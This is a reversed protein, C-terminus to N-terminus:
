VKGCQIFRIMYRFIIEPMHFAIIEFLTTAKNVSRLKFLKRISGPKGQSNEIRANAWNSIDPLVINPFRNKLEFVRNYFSRLHYEIYEKKNSINILVGTQNNQHQRYLVLPESFVSIRHNISNYFALYHDHVMNLAFPLSQKAITSRILMTCGIVFNRIILTGSLHYGELFIHRPRFETISKGIVQSSENIIFVDSCVLGAQTEEIKKQLLLLKDPLWVDDQDCYAFYNGEAEETLLEFTCNSGINKSNRNIIYPFRVITEKVLNVINEFTEIKSCDDRIYLKIWPYTQNNISDLQEKLWDMRPEYTAM